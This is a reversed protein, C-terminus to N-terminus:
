VQHASLGLESAYHAWHEKLPADEELLQMTRLDACVGGFVVCPRTMFAVAFLSLLRAVEAAIRAEARAAEYSRGKISTASPHHLPILAGSCGPCASPQSGRLFHAPAGTARRAQKARAATGPCL